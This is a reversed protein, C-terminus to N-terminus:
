LCCHRLAVAVGAIAPVSGARRPCTAFHQRLEWNGPLSGAGFVAAFDGPGVTIKMGTVSSGLGETM